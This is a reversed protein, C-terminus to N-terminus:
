RCTVGAPPTERVVPTRSPEGCRTVQKRCSASSLDWMLLETVSVVSCWLMKIACADRKGGGGTQSPAFLFIPAGGGATMTVWAAISELVGVVTFGVVDACRRGGGGRVEVGGDEMGCVGELREGTGAYMVETGEEEAGEENVEAGEEKVESGEEKVESTLEQAGEVKVGRGALVMAEAEGVV